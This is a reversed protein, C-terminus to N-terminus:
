SKKLIINAIELSKCKWIFKPIAKNIEVLIIDASIKVSISTANVRRILKHFSSIKVIDTKWHIIVM